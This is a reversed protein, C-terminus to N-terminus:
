KSGVSGVPGADFDETQSAHIGASAVPQLGLLLGRHSSEVLSVAGLPMRVTDFFGDSRSLLRGAIGVLRRATWLM